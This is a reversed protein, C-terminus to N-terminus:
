TCHKLVALKKFLSLKSRVADKEDVDPDHDLLLRLAQENGAGAAWHLAKRGTQASVGVDCLQDLTLWFVVDTRPGRSKSQKQSECERGEQDAGRTEGHREEEHRRPAGKRVVASDALLCM